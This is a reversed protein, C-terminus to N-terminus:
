ETSPKPNDQKIKDIMEFWTNTNNKKDWYLMDLQVQISPYSSARKLLYEQDLEITVNEM